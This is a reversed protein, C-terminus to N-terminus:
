ACERDMLRQYDGEAAETITLRCDFAVRLFRTMYQCHFSVNLPLM